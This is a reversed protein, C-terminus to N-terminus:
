LGDPWPCFHELGLILPVIEKNLSRDAVKRRFKLARFQLNEPTRWFLFFDHGHGMKLSDFFVTKKSRCSQDVAYPRLSMLDCFRLNAIQSLM